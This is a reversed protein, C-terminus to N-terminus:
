FDKYDKMMVLHLMREEVDLRPNLELFNDKGLDVNLWHLTHTHIYLYYYVTLIM